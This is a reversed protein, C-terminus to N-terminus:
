PPIFIRNPNSTGQLYIDRMGDALSQKPRLRQKDIHRSHYDTKPLMKLFLHIIYLKRTKMEPSPRVKRRSNNKQKKM